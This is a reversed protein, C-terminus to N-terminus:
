LVVDHKSRITDEGLYRVAETAAQGPGGEFYFIPEAAKPATRAPIVVIKLPLRRGAPKARDEPVYLVGCRVEGRIDPVQCAELRLTSRASGGTGATSAAAAVALLHTVFATGVVLPPRVM